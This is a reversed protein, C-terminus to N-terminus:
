LGLNWWGGSFDRGGWCERARLLVEEVREDDVDVVVVVWRGRWPVRMRSRERTRAPGKQV